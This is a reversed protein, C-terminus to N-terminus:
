INWSKGANLSQDDSIGRIFGIHRNTPPFYYASNVFLWRLSSSIHFHNLFSTTYLGVCPVTQMDPRGQHQESVCRPCSDARRLESCISTTSLLIKNTVFFFFFISVEKGLMWAFSVYYFFSSSISSNTKKERKKRVRIAGLQATWIEVVATVMLVYYWKTILVM